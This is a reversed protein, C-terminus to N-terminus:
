LETNGEYVKPCKLNCNQIQWDWYIDFLYFLLLITFLPIRYFLKCYGTLSAIFNWYLLIVYHFGGKGMFVALSILNESSSYNKSRNKLIALMAVGFSSKSTDGVEISRWIEDIHYSHCPVICLKSRGSNECLLGWLLGWTHGM